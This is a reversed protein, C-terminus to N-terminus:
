RSHTLWLHAGQPMFAGGLRCGGGCSVGAGCPPGAYAISAARGNDYVQYSVGSSESVGIKPVPVAAAPARSPAGCIIPSQRDSVPFSILRAVAAAAARSPSNAAGVAADAMAQRPPASGTGRHDRAVAGLM